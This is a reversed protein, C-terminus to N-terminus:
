LRLFEEVSVGAQRLINKMLKIDNIVGSGHKNPVTLTVDGRIMISHPRGQGYPGEFGLKRLCKILEKHKIPVLKPM